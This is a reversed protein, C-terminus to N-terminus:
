TLRKSIYCKITAWDIVFIATLIINENEASLSTQGDLLVPIVVRLRTAEIVNSGQLIQRYSPGTINIRRINRNIPWNKSNTSFEEATSQVEGRKHVCGLQYIENLSEKM